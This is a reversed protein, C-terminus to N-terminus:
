LGVTVGVIVNYEYGHISILILHYSTGLLDM